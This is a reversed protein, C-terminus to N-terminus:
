AQAPPGNAFPLSHPPSVVPARDDRALAALEVSVVPEDITIEAVQASPPAVTAACCCAGVCTCQSHSTHAPAGHHAAHDMGQMDHPTAATMSHAAHRDGHVSCSHLEGPGVLTAGLWVAWVSIMLRLWLPRRMRRRYHAAVAIM